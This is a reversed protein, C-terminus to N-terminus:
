VNIYTSILVNCDLRNLSGGRYSLWEDLIVLASGAWAFKWVTTVTYSRDSKVLSQKQQKGFSFLRDLVVFFKIWRLFAFCTILISLTLLIFISKYNSLTLLIVMKFIKIDATM